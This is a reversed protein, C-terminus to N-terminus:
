THDLVSTQDHEDDKSSEDQFSSWRGGWFLENGPKRLTWPETFQRTELIKWGAVWPM